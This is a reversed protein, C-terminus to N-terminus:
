IMAEFSTGRMPALLLSRSTDNWDWMFEVATKLATVAQDAGIDRDALKGHAVRNRPTFVNTNLRLALKRLASASVRAKASNLASLEAAREGVRLVHDIYDEGLNAARL